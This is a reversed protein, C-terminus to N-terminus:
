PIDAGDKRVTGRHTTPSSNRLWELMSAISFLHCGPSEGPFVFCCASDACVCVCVCVISLLHEVIFGNNM